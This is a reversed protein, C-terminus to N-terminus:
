YYRLAVQVSLCKLLILSLLVSSSGPCVSMEALNVMKSGYKGCRGESPFLGIFSGFMFDSLSGGGGGGVKAYARSLVETFICLISLLTTMPGDFISTALKYTHM